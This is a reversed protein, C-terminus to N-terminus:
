EKLEWKSYNNCNNSIDCAYGYRYNHDCNFCCKMKEIEAKLKTNELCLDKIQNAQCINVSHEIAEKGCAECVTKM